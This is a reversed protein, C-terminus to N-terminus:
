NVDFYGLGALAKYNRVFYPPEKPPWSYGLRFLVETTYHNEFEINRMEFGNNMDYAILPRMLEALAPNEFARSVVQM